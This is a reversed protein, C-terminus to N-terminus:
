ADVLADDDDAFVHAFFLVGVEDGEDVGFDDFVFAFEGGVVFATEGDGGDVAEDRAVWFGADFGEEFVAM